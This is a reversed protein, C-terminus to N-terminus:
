IKFAGDINGRLYEVEAKFLKFIYNSPNKKSFEELINLAEDFIRLKIQILLFLFEKLYRYRSIYCVEAIKRYADKYRKDFYLKFADFIIINHEDKFDIFNDIEFDFYYAVILNFLSFINEIEENYFTELILYANNFDYIKLYHIFKLTLILSYFPETKSSEYNEIQLFFKLFAKNEIKNLNLDNNYLLKYFNNITNKIYPIKCTNTFGLLYYLIEDEIDKDVVKQLNGRLGTIGNKLNKMLYRLYPL